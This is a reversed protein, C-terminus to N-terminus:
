PCLIRALADLCYHPGAGEIARSRTAIAAAQRPQRPVLQGGACHEMGTDPVFRDSAFSRGSNVGPWIFPPVGARAIETAFSPLLAGDLSKVDFINNAAPPFTMHDAHIGVYKTMATDQNILWTTSYGAEKALDVINGRIPATTFQEPTIGTLINPVSWFTLNADAVADQLFPFGGHPRDHHLTSM